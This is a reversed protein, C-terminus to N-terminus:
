TSNVLVVGGSCNAVVVYYHLRSLPPSLLIALYRLLNWFSTGSFDWFQVSKMARWGLYALPAHFQTVWHSFFRKKECIEVSLFVSWIKALLTQTKGYMGNVLLWTFGTNTIKNGYMLFHFSIKCGILSYIPTLLWHTFLTDVPSAANIRAVIVLVLHWQIM